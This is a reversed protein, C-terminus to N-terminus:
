QSDRVQETTYIVDYSVPADFVLEGARIWDAVTRLKTHDFVIEPELSTLSDFYGAPERGPAYVPYSRYIQRVQM